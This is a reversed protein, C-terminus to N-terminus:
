AAIMVRRSGKALGAVYGAAPHQDLPIPEIVILDNTLETTM